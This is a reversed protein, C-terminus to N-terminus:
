RRGGGRKPWCVSSTKVSSRPSLGASIPAKRAALTIQVRADLINDAGPYSRQYSFRMAGLAARWATEPQRRALADPIEIETFGCALVFACQDAIVPGKARLAGAYGRLRLQRALSFGRGDVFSPFAIAILTLRVLWPELECIKATNPAEVGIPRGPVLLAEGEALLRQLAVIAPGEPLPADDAVRPWSDPVFRGESILM